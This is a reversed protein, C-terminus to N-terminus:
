ILREVFVSWNEKVFNWTVSNAYVNSAAYGIGTVTDQVRVKSQDLQDELYSRILHPERACSMGYQLDAKHSSDIENTFTSSAFM